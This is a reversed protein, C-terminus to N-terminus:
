KKRKGTTNLTLGGKRYDAAGTRSKVMGGSAFNRKRAVKAQKNWYKENEDMFKKQGKYEPNKEADKSRAAYEAANLMRTTQLITKGYKKKFEARTMTDDYVKDVDKRVRKLTAEWDKTSGMQQAGAATKKLKISKKKKEAM